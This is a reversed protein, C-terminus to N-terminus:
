EISEEMALIEAVLYLSGMCILVGNESSAVDYLAKNYADKLNDSVYMDKGAFYEALEYASLARATHAETLYCKKLNHLGLLLKCEEYYDKDACVGMLLYIDNGWFESRITELLRKVAESNHAGDLYVNPRIEQMRGVWSFNQISDVVKGEEISDGILYECANIALAANDIQYIAKNNIFSLNLYEGRPTVIDFVVKDDVIRRLIEAPGISICGDLCSNVDFYTSQIVQSAKDDAKYVLPVDRKIIGAKEAAISEITNGLQEMHDMGVSTIVTVSPNVVNTADLRGGLGTEYVVYDLDPITSFYYAAMVFIYEFFSLRSGGRKIHEEETEKVKLCFSLFDDDSIDCKNESHVSIRENMKLMHPSTFVGVKYGHCALIDAIMTTVSGKGNTGAVHVCPTKLHPNDLLELVGLMNEKGSKGFRPINLLMEVCEDYNMDM